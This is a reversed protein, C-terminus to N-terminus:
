IIGMGPEFLDLASEGTARSTNRMEREIDDDDSSGSGSGTSTANKVAGDSAASVIIAKYTSRMM